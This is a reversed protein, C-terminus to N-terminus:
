LGARLARWCRSTGPSASAPRRWAALVSAAASTRRPAKVPMATCASSALLAPSSPSIKALTASSSRSAIPLPSRTRSTTSFSRAKALTSSSAARIAPKLPSTLLVPAPASVIARSNWGATIVSSMESGSMCPQRMRSRSLVSTAVRWMGIQTTEVSSERSRASCAPAIPKTAL